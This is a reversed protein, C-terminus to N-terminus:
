QQLICECLYCHSNLLGRYYGGQSHTTGNTCGLLQNNTVVALPQM